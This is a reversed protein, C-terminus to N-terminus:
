YGLEVVMAAHTAHWDVYSASEDRVAEPLRVHSSLVDEGLARAWSSDSVIALQLAPARHIKGSLDVTLLFSEFAADHTPCAAMGNRSDTREKASSERWPKIHSAILMRAPPLNLARTSLGCFVCAYSANALVRRAFQQQGVRATGLFLRETTAIPRDRVRSLNENILPEMADLLESDSVGVADFVALVQKSGGLIDPVTEPGLGVRRAAAIITGYIEAFAAGDNTLRIWLEQEHRAGNARRGDLNALKLGLSDPSRKFLHAFRVVQESTPRLNITGSRSPVEILGLAFCVLTEVPLFRVQKKGTMPAERRAIAVWQSAASELSLDLYDALSLM